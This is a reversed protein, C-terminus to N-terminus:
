QIRRWFNDYYFTEVLDTMEQDKSFRQNIAATTRNGLAKYTDILKWGAWKPHNNRSIGKYTEGGSDGSVNAYGGEMGLTHAHAKYFAAEYKSM